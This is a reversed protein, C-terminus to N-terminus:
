FLSRYGGRWGITLLTQSTAGSVSVDLLNAGKQFPRFVSARSILGFALAGNLRASRARPDTVLRLTQGAPIAGDIIVDLGSDATIRAGDPAPGRLSVTPWVPTASPMAVPMDEGIVTTSALQRTGWPLDTGATASLFPTGSVLPFPLVREERDRAIPDAAVLKLVIRDSYAQGHDDGELGSVYAVTLERQGTPTSSCLKFSGLPTMGVTPDTLDRLVQVQARKESDTRGWVKLPLV